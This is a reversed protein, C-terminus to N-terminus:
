RAAREEPGQQQEFWDVSEATYRSVAQMVKHVNAAEEESFKRTVGSHTMEAEHFAIEYADSKGSAVFKGDRMEGRSVTWRLKCDAPDLTIMEVRRLSAPKPSDAAGCVALVALLAARKWLRSRM